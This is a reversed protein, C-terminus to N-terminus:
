KALSVLFQVFSDFAREFEWVGAGHEATLIPADSGNSQSLDLAYPDGGHSAVVVLHEPWDAIPTKEIPNFSYGDQGELLEAASKTSSTFRGRSNRKLIPWRPTDGRSLITSATPTAAM